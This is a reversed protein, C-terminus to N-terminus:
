DILNEEKLKPLVNHEFISGVKINLPLISSIWLIEEVESSPIIKGRWNNVLLVDMQLNKDNDGAAPAYFTGFVKLDKVDVEIGLEEKLERKLATRVSEGTEVKGGPAIFFDKGKSRTVLFRRDKLLVGGAKHIDIRKEM